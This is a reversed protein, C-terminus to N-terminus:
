LNQRTLEFGRPQIRCILYRATTILNSLHPRLRQPELSPSSLLLSLIISSLRRYTLRDQQWQRPIGANPLIHSIYLLLRGM